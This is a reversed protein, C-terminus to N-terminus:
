LLSFEKMFLILSRSWRMLTYNLFWLSSMMLMDSISLCFLVYSKWQWLKLTLCLSIRFLLLYHHAWPVVLPRYVKNEFKFFTSSLIFDIGILFEDLTFKTNNSIPSWRKKIDEIVLNSLINTFLSTVDLSILDYDHSVIKDRLEEILCFSNKIHSKPQPLYLSIFHQSLCSSLKYLPSNVYSVIIRLPDSNKHIKPLGYARPLIGDTSFLSLYM